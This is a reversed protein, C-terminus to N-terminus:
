KNDISNEITSIDGQDEGLNIWAVDIGNEGNTGYDRWTVDDEGPADANVDLSATIVDDTGVNAATVKVIYTEGKSSIEDYRDGAFELNGVGSAMDITWENGSESGSGIKTSGAYLDVATVNLPTDTDADTEDIKVKVSKLFANNDGSPTLTFKLIEKTGTTLTTPQNSSLTAIVKNNFVYMDDGNDTKESTDTGGDDTII